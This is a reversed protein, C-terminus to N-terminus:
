IAWRKIIQLLDTMFRHILTPKVPPTLRPAHRWIQSSVHDWNDNLKMMKSESAFDFNSSQSFGGSTSCADTTTDYSSFSSNTVAVYRQWSPNLNLPFVSTVQSRSVSSHCSVGGVQSSPLSKSHWSSWIWNIFKEVSFAAFKNNLYIIWQKINSKNTRFNTFASFNTIFYCNTIQRGCVAFVPLRVGLVANM